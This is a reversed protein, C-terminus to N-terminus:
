RHGGVFYRAARVVIQAGKRVRVGIPLVPKVGAVGDNLLNTQLDGDKDFGAHRAAKKHRARPVPQYRHLQNWTKRLQM